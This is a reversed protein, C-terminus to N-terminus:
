DNAASAARARPFGAFPGTDTLPGAIAQRQSPTLVLGVDVLAQTARRSQLDHRQEIRARVAEIAPADVATGAFLRALQERDAREALRSRRLDDAAADFIQHVQARQTPSAQVQDLLGDLRQGHPVLAGPPPALATGSSWAALAVGSALAVGLAFLFARVPRAPPVGATAAPTRAYRIM